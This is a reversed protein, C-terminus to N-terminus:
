MRTVPTPGRDGKHRNADDHRRARAVVARAVLRRQILDRPKLRVRVAEAARDQQKGPPVLDRALQADCRAAHGEATLARFGNEDRRARVAAGHDLHAALRIAVRLFLGAM